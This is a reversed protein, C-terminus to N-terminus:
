ITTIYGSHRLWTHTTIFGAATKQAHIKQSRFLKSWYQHSKGFRKELDRASYWPERAYIWEKSCDHEKETM